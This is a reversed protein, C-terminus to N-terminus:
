DCLPEIKHMSTPGALEARQLAGSACGPGPRVAALAGAALFVIRAGLFMQLGSQCQAM